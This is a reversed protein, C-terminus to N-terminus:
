EKHRIRIGRMAEAARIRVQASANSPPLLLVAEMLVSSLILADQIAAINREKSIILRESLEEYTSMSM